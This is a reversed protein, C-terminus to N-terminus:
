IKPKKTHRINFNFKRNVRVKVEKFKNGKTGSNEQSYYSVQNIVADYGSITAVNSLLDSNYNWEIQYFQKLLASSTQADYTVDTLIVRALVNVVAGGKWILVYRVGALVNSCSGASFHLIEM